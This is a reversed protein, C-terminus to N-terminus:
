GYNSSILGGVGLTVSLIWLAAESLAWYTTPVWYINTGTRYICNESWILFLHSFNKGHTWTLLQCPEFQKRIQWRLNQGRKRQCSSTAQSLAAAYTPKLNMEEMSFQFSEASSRLCLYVGQARSDARGVDLSNEHPHHQLQTWGGLVDPSIGMTALPVLSPSSDLICEMVTLGCTVSVDKPSINWWGGLSPGKTEDTEHLFSSLSQNFPPSAKLKEVSMVTNHFPLTSLLWLSTWLAFMPCFLVGFYSGLKQKWNELHYYGLVNLWWEQIWWSIVERWIQCLTFWWHVDADKM